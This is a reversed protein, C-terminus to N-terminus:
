GTPLFQPTLIVSAMGLQRVQLVPQHPDLICHVGMQQQQQAAAPGAAAQAGAAAAVAAADGTPKNLKMKFKLKHPKPQGQDQPLASPLVGHPGQQQQPQQQQQSQATNQNMSPLGKINGLKLKPMPLPPRQGAPQQQQQQQLAQQQAQPAQAPQQPPVLHQVQQQQQQQVYQQQNQQGRPSSHSRRPIKNSHHTYPQGLLKAHYQQRLSNLLVGDVYVSHWGDDGQKNPTILRKVHVSFASPTNFTTGASLAFTCIHASASLL